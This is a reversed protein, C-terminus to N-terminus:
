QTRDKFYEKWFPNEQDFIKVEEKTMNHPYDAYMNYIKKKDFSFLWQGIQDTDVWWIKDNEDNKYFHLDENNLMDVLV